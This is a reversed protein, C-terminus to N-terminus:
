LVREGDWGVGDWGMGDWSSCVRDWYTSWTETCKCCVVQNINPASRESSHVYVSTPTHSTPSPIHNCHQVFQYRRTTSFASIFHSLVSHLHSVESEM